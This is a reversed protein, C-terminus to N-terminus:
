QAARVGVAPDLLYGGDRSVLIRTLGQARLSSVAVKLRKYLVDAPELADPWTVARLQATPVVEGPSVERARVLAGLLRRSPSGPRLEFRAGWPPRFWSTGPGILLSDQAHESAAAASREIARALLQRARRARGLSDPGSTTLRDRAARLHRRMDDHAGAAAARDAHALELAGALIPAVMAVEPGARPPDRAEVFTAEAEAIRGQEALVASLYVRALADGGEVGVDQRIRASETLLAVARDLAGLAFSAIGMDLFASRLWYRVDRWCRALDHAIPLMDELEAATAEYRGREFACIALNHRTYLAFYLDGTALAVAHADAFLRESEDLDGEHLAVLALDFLNRRSAWQGLSPVTEGAREFLSRARAGHGHELELIGLRSAADFEVAPAHAARATVIAAHLHARAQPSDNLAGHCAGVRRLAQAEVLPSGAEAALRRSELARELARPVALARMHAEAAALEYRARLALPGNGLDCRRAADELARLGGDLV